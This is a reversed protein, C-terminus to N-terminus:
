EDERPKKDPIRIPEGPGDPAKQEKDVLAARLMVRLERVTGLPKGCGRCVVTAAGDLYRVRVALVGCDECGILPSFAGM